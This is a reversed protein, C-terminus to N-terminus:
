RSHCGKPAARSRPRFHMAALAKAIRGSEIDPAMVLSPKRLGKVVGAMVIANRYKRGPIDLIRVLRSVATMCAAMRDAADDRDNKVHVNAFIVGDPKLRKRAQAFFADSFFEGPTDGGHFADLVIADYTRRRSSLFAFGDAVHCEVADPLGFYRRALVFAHPNVDV